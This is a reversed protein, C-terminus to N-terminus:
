TVSSLPKTFVAEQSDAIVNMSPSAPIRRYRPMSMSSSTDTGIGDNRSVDYRSM